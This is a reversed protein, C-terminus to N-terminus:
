RPLALWPMHYLQKSLTRGHIGRCRFHSSSQHLILDLIAKQTDLQDYSFASFVASQIAKELKNFPLRNLDYYKLLSKMLEVDSRQFSGCRALYQFVRNVSCQVLATLDPTSSVHSLLARFIELHGGKAALIIADEEDARCVQVDPHDLLIRVTQLCGARSAFEIGSRTPYRYITNVELGQELLYGVWFFANPREFLVKLGGLDQDPSIHLARDLLSNKIRPDDISSCMGIRNLSITDLPCGTIILDLMDLNKNEDAARFGEYCVDDRISAPALLLAALEINGLQCALLFPEDLSIHRVARPSELIAEVQDYEGNRFEDELMPAVRIDSGQDLLNSILHNLGWRSCISIPTVQRLNAHGVYVGSAVTFPSINEYQRCWQLELERYVIQAPGTLFQLLLNQLPTQFESCHAAWHEKCYGLFPWDVLEGQPLTKLDVHFGNRKEWTASKSGSILLESRHKRM